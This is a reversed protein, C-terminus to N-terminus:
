GGAQASLGAEHLIFDAIAEIDDAGFVPLELEVLCTDAAVARITPDNQAILPKESAERSVELKAHNYQKFGEILVLD